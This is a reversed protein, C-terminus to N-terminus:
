KYTAVLRKAVLALTSVISVKVQLTKFEFNKIEYVIKNYKEIKFRYNIKINYIYYALALM